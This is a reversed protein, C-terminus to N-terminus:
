CSVGLDCVASWCQRHGWTSVQCLIVSGLLMEDELVAGGVFGLCFLYVHSAGAVPLFSVWLSSLVYSSLASQPLTESAMTMDLGERITDSECPLLGQLMSVETQM